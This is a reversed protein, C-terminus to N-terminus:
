LLQRINSVWSHGCVTKHQTNQASLVNLYGVMGAKYEDYKWCAYSGTARAKAWKQFYLKLLLTTKLKKSPQIQKYSAASADYAAIAQKTTSAWWWVTDSRAYSWGVLLHM